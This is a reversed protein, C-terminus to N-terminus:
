KQRKNARCKKCGSQLGDKTTLSNHFNARELVKECIQCWKHTDNNIDDPPKPYVTM